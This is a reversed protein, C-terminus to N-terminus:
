EEGSGSKLPVLEEELMWNKLTKIINFFKLKYYNNLTSMKEYKTVVEYYNRYFNPIIYVCLFYLKESIYSM